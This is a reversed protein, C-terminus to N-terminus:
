ETLQPPVPVRHIAPDFPDVRHGEPPVWPSKGDWMIINVVVDDSERIVAYQM